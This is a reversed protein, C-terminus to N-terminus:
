EGGGSTLSTRSGGDYEVLSSDDEELEEDSDVDKSGYEAVLDLQDQQIIDRTIEIAILDDAIDSSMGPFWKHSISFAILDKLAKSEDAPLKDILFSADQFGNFALISRATSARVSHMLWYHGLM